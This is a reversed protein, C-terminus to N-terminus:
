RRADGFLIASLSGLIAVARVGAPECRSRGACRARAARGRGGLGMWVWGPWFVGAGTAAWVVTVVLALVASVASQLALAAAGHEAPM